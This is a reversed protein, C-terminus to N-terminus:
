GIRVGTGIAAVVGLGAAVVGLALGVLLWFMRDGLRYMEAQADTKPDRASM